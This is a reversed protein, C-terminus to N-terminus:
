RSPNIHKILRTFNSQQVSDITVQRRRVSMDLTAILAKFKEDNLNQIFYGKALLGGLRTIRKTKDLNYITVIGKELNSIIEPTRETSIMSRVNDTVYKKMQAIIDRPSASSSLLNSVDGILYLSNELICPSIEKELNVNISVDIKFNYKRWVGLNIQGSIEIHDLAVVPNMIQDLLDSDSPMEEEFVDDIALTELHPAASHLKSREFYDDDVNPPQIAAGNITVTLGVESFMESIQTGLTEKFGNEDFVHTQPINMVVDVDNSKKGSILDRPFGGFVKAGNQMMIMAVVLDINGFTKAAEDLLANMNCSSM